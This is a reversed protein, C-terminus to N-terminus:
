TTKFKTQNLQKIKMMSNISGLDGLYFYFHGSKGINKPSTWKPSSKSEVIEFLPLTRNEENQNPTQRDDCVRTQPKDETKHNPECGTALKPAIDNTFFYM